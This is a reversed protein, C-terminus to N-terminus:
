ATLMRGAAHQYSIRQSGYSDRIENMTLERRGRKRWGQPALFWRRKKAAWKFGMAKLDAKHPYTNGGIWLFSGCIEIELGEMHILAEIIEAYRDTVDDPRDQTEDTYVSGSQSKHINYNHKRLFDFEVNLRSMEEITGGMDPHLKMALAKYQKKIDEIATTHDAKILKLQSYSTVKM